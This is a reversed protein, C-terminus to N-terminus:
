RVQVALFRREPNAISEQAEVLQIERTGSKVTAELVAFGESKLLHAVAFLVVPNDDVILIKAPQSM